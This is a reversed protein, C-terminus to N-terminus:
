VEGTMVATSAAKLSGSSSALARVLSYASILLTNSPSRPWCIITCAVNASHKTAAASAAPHDGPSISPRNRRM